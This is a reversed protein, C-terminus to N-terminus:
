KNQKYDDSYKAWALKYEETGQVFGKVVLDRHLDDKSKVSDSPIFNVTKKGDKDEEIKPEVGTGTIKRGEDIIDKLKSRLMESPTFPNLTDKNRLINGDKDKFIMKGEVIEAIELLENKISTVVVKAINEAIGDKFKIGMLSRDLVNEMGAHQHSTELTSKEKGWTEKGDTYKKQVNVLERKADSLETKLHEDGTNSSIKEKLQGIETEYESSKSAKEKYAGMIRKVYDYSKENQRRDEGTLEKVDRDYGSHVEEIKPAIVTDKYNDLFTEHGKGEFVEFETETSDQIKKLAEEKNIGM